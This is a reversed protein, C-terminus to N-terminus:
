SHRRAHHALTEQLAHVPLMALRGETSEDVARPPLASILGALHGTEDLVPAGDFGKTLPTSLVFFPRGRTFRDVVSEFRAHLSRPEPEAAFRSADYGLLRARRGVLRSSIGRPPDPGPDIFGMGEAEVRLLAVDVSEDLHYRPVGVVRLELRTGTAHTVVRDLRRAEFVRRSTALLGDGVHFATAFYRAGGGDILEVCAVSRLREDRAGERM